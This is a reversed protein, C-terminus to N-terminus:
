VAGTTAIRYKLFGTVRSGGTQLVLPQGSDVEFHPQEWSGNFGLILGTKAPFGPLPMLVIGTSSPGQYLALDQLAVNWLFLEYILKKGILTSILQNDGGTTLDIPVHLLSARIQQPSPAPTTLDCGPSIPHRHARRLAAARARLVLNWPNVTGRM